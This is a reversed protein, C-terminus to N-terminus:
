VLYRQQPRIWTSGSENDRYREQPRIWASGSENDREAEELYM